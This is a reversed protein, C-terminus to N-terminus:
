GFSGPLQAQALREPTGVDLWPGAYYEAVLEGAAIAAELVPRLPRFGVELDAFLEPRLCAMGGFTRANFAMDINGQADVGFDGAPHHAPNPVLLLCGLKDAPVVLQTIDFDTVVDSSVLWFPARGLWPLAQVIGGATELAAPCEESFRIPVPPDLATVADRIMAGRYAINIVIEEVQAAVLRDIQRALLTGGGVELLPKPCNATLAGMREGRGAALLMAKM